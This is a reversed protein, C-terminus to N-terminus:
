ILINLNDNDDNHSDITLDDIAEDRDKKYKSNKDQNFNGEKNFGRNLSDSFLNEDNSKINVVVNKVDINSEKLHNKLDEINKSVLDLVKNDDVTILLDSNESDKSLKISIEGLDRPNLKVNLEEIDSNKIYKVSKVIDESIFEQRIEMVPQNIDNKTGNNYVSNFRNTNSFSNIYSNDDPSVINELCDMDKNKSNKAEDIKTMNLIGITDLNKYTNLEDESIDIEQIRDKIKNILLDLNENIKNNNLNDKKIFNNIDDLINKIGDFKIIDENQQTSKMGELIEKINRFEDLGLKSNLVSNINEFDMIGEINEQIDLKQCLTYIFNYLILAEDVDDINNSIVGNNEDELKFESIFNNFTSLSDSSVTDSQTSTSAGIMNSTNINIM